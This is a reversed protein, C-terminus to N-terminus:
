SSAVKINMVTIASSSSAIWLTLICPSQSCILFSNPFDLMFHTGPQDRFVKHSNAYQLRSLVHPPECRRLGPHISFVSPVAMARSFDRERRLCLPMKAKKAFSKNSFTVASPWATVANEIRCSRLNSSKCPCVQRAVKTFVM